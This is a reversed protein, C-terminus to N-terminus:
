ARPRAEDLIARSLAEAADGDGRSIAAALEVHQQATGAIPNRKASGFVSKGRLMAVLSPALAAFMENRSSTLVAAHFKLDTELQEGVRQSPHAELHALADALRSIEACQAPSADDAAARAALPEVAVRLQNLSHLQAHRTRDHSLRAAIVRPDFVQWRSQPAVTIGVRRSSAALGLYELVRLAERAVTRSVQFRTGVSELTFTHGAPLMGTVIEAVLADIVPEVLPATAM